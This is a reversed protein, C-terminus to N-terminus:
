VGKNEKGEAVANGVGTNRYLQLFGLAGGARM